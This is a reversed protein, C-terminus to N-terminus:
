NGEEEERLERGGGAEEEVQDEEKGRRSEEQRWSETAESQVQSEATQATEKPQKPKEKVAEPFPLFINRSEVNASFLFGFLGNLRFLCTFPRFSFVNFLGFLRIRM